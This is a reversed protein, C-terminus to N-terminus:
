QVQPAVDCVINEPIFSIGSDIFSHDAKCPFLKPSNFMALLFDVDHLCSTQQLRHLM